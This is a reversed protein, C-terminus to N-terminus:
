KARSEPLKKLYKIQNSKRDLYNIFSSPKNIGGANNNFGGISSLFLRFSSFFFILEHYKTQSSKGEMIYLLEEQICSDVFYSHASGLCQAMM